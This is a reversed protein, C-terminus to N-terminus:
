IKLEKLIQEWRNRYTYKSKVLEHGAKRIAEREEDHELYYDILEKLQNFNGYEYFVLHKKDEFEREMGQVYPHIIFGGRGMTEYVRDSWYDPYKFNICLTDGVVIKTSQGVDLKCFDDINKEKSVRGVYLLIIESSKKDKYTFVNSYGKGLVVANWQNNEKANSKSSCMVLKSNKHFWNIYAKTIFKPFKYIEYLFEPFKTHYATTYAVGFKDLVRKAQIGLPGETAIHFYARNTIDTYLISEMECLSCLAFQIESYGPVQIKKFMNPHIIECWVDSPLNKIINNYTTVVGNVQPEWADTILVIKTM